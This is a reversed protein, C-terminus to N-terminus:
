VSADAEAKMEMLARVVKHLDEVHSQFYAVARLDCELYEATWDTVYNRGTVAADIVVQVCDAAPM